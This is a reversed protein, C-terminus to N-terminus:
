PDLKQLVAKRGHQNKFTNLVNLVNVVIEMTDKYIVPFLVAWM